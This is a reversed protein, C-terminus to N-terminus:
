IFVNYLTLNVDSPLLEDGTYNNEKLCKDINKNIEDLKETGITRDIKKNSHFTKVAYPKGIFNLLREEWGCREINIILFSDKKDKFFSM